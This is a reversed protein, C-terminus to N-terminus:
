AWEGKRFVPVRMGEQTIGDIDIEGSGIMWDIHIVSKNGGRAAIEEPTLSAGNLFCKSYCQGLAIHCAANEDFLTNYFLLDSKSIPSSHPVLAVEGLRSAGEDSQLVQQLVEQGKSARAEVIRGAEFRVEINKILTGQYSLPKTSRVFGEVKHAHPTTFVEETPINPNCVVGNQAVSAGGQWEHDDALGVTLDTGPGKFHLASFRQENLWSSRQKLNANHVGWAHVPDEGTVRSASFIADALKKIAENIPLAPFITAAWGATPYAVISWNMAFNSIEKLAPQYAISTAKSLRAVKNFDQNSLLSPDDGVIALRAAGNRFAQAMGEYLWSPACDFSATHANEFRTLLLMDDSFLPIIVGAGAKYAHYAIRRVFPLASIPATLVLDQGKQLNLGVKVTIEALRNLKESSITEHIDFYM